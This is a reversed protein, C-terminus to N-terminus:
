ETQQPSRPENKLEVVTRSQKAQNIPFARLTNELERFTRILAFHDTEIRFTLTGRQLRNPYAVGTITTRGGTGLKIALKLGGGTNQCVVTGSRTTLASKLQGHLAVLDDTTFSAKFSGLFAGAQVTVTSDLWVADSGNKSSRNEFEVVRVEIRDGEAFFTFKTAV